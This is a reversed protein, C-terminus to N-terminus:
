IVERVHFQTDGLQELVRLAFVHKGDIEFRRADVLIVRNLKQGSRLVGLFDNQVKDPKDPGTVDMRGVLKVSVSALWGSTTNAFASVTKYADERRAPRAQM